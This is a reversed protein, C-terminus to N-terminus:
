KKFKEEIKDAVWDIIDVSMVVLTLALMAWIIGNIM